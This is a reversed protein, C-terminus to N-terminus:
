VRNYKKITNTHENIPMTGLMNFLNFAIARVESSVTENIDATIPKLIIAIKKM